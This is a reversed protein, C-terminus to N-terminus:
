RSDELDSPEPGIYRAKPRFRLPKEEYEEMAHALWGATRAIAFIAEGADAPMGALYTLAGTALDVNPIADSREGVLDRVRFITQLRRDGSWAQVITAMLAGYRPDQTRYISHGFGPVRGGRRQIDGVVAAADGRQDTEAYLRHVEGSAAGHLPGSIVGLGAGIVSYPDARVSAAIRAAFTSGALGHDALLAFAVDLARQQDPTAPADTLGSFLRAELEVPPEGDPDPGNGPGGSAAARGPARLGTCMAVIARRGAARVSKPSLDHRMPDHSSSQAVLVRLQDLPALGAAAVPPEARAPVHWGEDAPSDWLLDAIETFGAGGAVLTVLDRGRIWVGDDAVRTLRSTLMTRLEGDHEPRRGLRLEEVEARDFLSTRGDLAMRRHLIGRSVYAYVTQRKIDLIEAVETTTLGRESTTESM